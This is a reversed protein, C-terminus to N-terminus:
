QMLDTRFGYQGCQHPMNAAVFHPMEFVKVMKEQAIALCFSRRAPLYRAYQPLAQALDALLIGVQCYFVCKLYAVRSQFEAGFIKLAKLVGGSM